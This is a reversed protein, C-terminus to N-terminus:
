FISNRSYDQELFIDECDWNGEEILIDLKQKM